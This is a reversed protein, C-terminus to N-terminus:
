KMDGSRPKGAPGAVSATFVTGPVTEQLGSAGFSRNVSVTGPVTKAVCKPTRLPERNGRRGSPSKEGEASRMTERQEDIGL